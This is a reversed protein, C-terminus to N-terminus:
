RRPFQFDGDLGQLVRPDRGYLDKRFHPRGDYDVWATWYLLLVPIKQKLFVTRTRGSAAAKELADGGWAPDDGLLLAALELPKEVRICGSSFAREDRDFLDRKPTDHLYVSYPNPFAFKVRGLANDPGPPQQLLYPFSRASAGAWDVGAPDVVRGSRDVVKLGRRALTRV